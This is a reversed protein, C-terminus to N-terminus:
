PKWNYKENWKVNNKECNLIGFFTGRYGLNVIVVLVIKDQQKPRSHTIFGTMEAVWMLKEELQSLSFDVYTHVRDVKLGYKLMKHLFM